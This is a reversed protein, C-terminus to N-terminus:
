SGVIAKECLMQRLILIIKPDMCTILPKAKVNRETDMSLIKPKRQGYIFDITFLIECKFCTTPTPLTQRKLTFRCM